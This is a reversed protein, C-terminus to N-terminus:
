EAAKQDDFAPQEDFRPAFLQPEVAPEEAVPEEVPRELPPKVGSTTDFYPHPMEVVTGDAGCVGTIVDYEGVCTVLTGCTPCPKASAAM